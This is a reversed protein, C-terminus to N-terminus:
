NHNASTKNDIAERVKGLLWKKLKVKKSITIDDRLKELQAKDNQIYILKKTFRILGLDRAKVESAIDKNRQLFKRYADLYYDLLDFEKLEYYCRLRLSKEILKDYNSTFTTKENLKELAEQYEEKHFHIQALGVTKAPKRIEKKLFGSYEEIFSRTWELQRTECGISIINLFDYYNLEGSELMVLRNELGSRYLELLEMAMKVHGKNFYYICYNRLCTFLDVQEIRNFKNLNKLVLEKLMGYKDLNFENERLISIFEIYIHIAFHDAINLQQCFNLIEDLFPIEYNESFIQQRNLLLVAYRLKSSCIFLDLGSITKNLNELDDKSFKPGPYFYVRHSIKFKNFYYFMDRADQSEIRKSAREIEAYFQDKAHRKELVTLLANERLEPTNLSSKVVLYDEALRKLEHMLNGITKRAKREQEATFEDATNEEPFLEFYFSIRSLKKHDSSKLYQSVLTFLKRIKENKNFIDSHLFKEFEKLERGSFVTLLEVLKGEKM